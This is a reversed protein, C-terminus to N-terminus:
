GERSGAHEGPHHEEAHEEHHQEAHDHERDPSPSYGHQHAPELFGIAYALLVGLVLATSLKVRDHAHFQLEPLIDALAICLFMGAAFGLVWGIVVQQNDAFQQIGLWFLAAGVINMLAFVVNVVQRTRASWGSAAMVTTISMADLPKHLLVAVFTGFGLLAVGPTPHSAEASVSAAIAMGDMLTHLTLGVCLGIWSYPHRHTDCEAGDIPFGTHAPVAAHDAHDCDASHAKTIPGHRHVQFTRILFFMALLGALTAWVSQDLSGTAAASHPLLHLLGVGLVLGGVLSLILQMRTHTLRMLSPLTGGALSAVAVFLCYVAILLLPWM